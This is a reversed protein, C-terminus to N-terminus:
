SRIKRAALQSVEGMVKKWAVWKLEFGELVKAYTSGGMRAIVKLKAPDVTDQTPSLVAKRVHIKAILGLVLNATTIPPDV